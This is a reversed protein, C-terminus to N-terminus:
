KSTNGVIQLGSFDPEPKKGKKISEGSNPRTKLNPKSSM